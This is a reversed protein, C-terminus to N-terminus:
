KVYREVFFEAYYREWAAGPARTQLDKDVTVLLFILDSKLMSAGLMRDFGKELLHSAYWISWDADVGDTSKFAVHHDEATKHLLAALSALLEPRNM